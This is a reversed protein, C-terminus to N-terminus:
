LKKILSQVTKKIYIQESKRLGILYILLIIITEELILFVIFWLFNSSNYYMRISSLLALSLIFVPFIRLYIQSFYSYFTMQIKPTVIFIRVQHAILEILLHVIFVVIPYAWVKLAYYSMPMILLLLTCEWMQFKKINGEAQNVIRLANALSGWINIILIIRCFSVTYDPVEKLWLSLIFPADIIIPVGLICLLFFSYKSSSILLQQAECCRNQATAKILQPNIATQFNHTFSVVANQIQVSIGRAANVTPGFFLNLIINLGHTFGMSVFSGYSAWSIFSFIKKFIVKDFMIGVRSEEFCRLCYVYYVLIDIIHVFMILFAYFILRDFPSVIILYVIALKAIADFLSIYAFAGMREHAIITANFPVMIINLMVTLVSFQYVWFAADVRGVPITMKERLFWLGVSEALVLVIFALIINIFLISSFTRKMETMESGSLAVTIFRASATSMTGQLFGLMTVIGGVVNYIGFDSIGLSALVIRSTYLSIAMLLLMRIYLLGTNKAIRKSNIAM